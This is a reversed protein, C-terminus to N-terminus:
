LDSDLHKLWKSSQSFKYINTRYAEEQVFKLYPAVLPNMLDDSILEKMNLGFMPQNFVSEKQIITHNSMSWITAQMQRVAEWCPLKIHYVTFVAQIQHYLDLSIIKHLYGVLLSAIMYGKNLFPFWISNDPTVNRIKEEEHCFLPEAAEEALGELESTVQGIVIDKFQMWLLEAQDGSEDQEFIDLPNTPPDEIIEPVDPELVDALHNEQTDDVPQVPSIDEDVLRMTQDLVRAAVRQSAIWDLREKAVQVPNQDGGRKTRRAVFYKFATDM